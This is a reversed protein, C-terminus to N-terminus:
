NGGAFIGTYIVYQGDNDTQIDALADTVIDLAQQLEKVKNSGQLNRDIDKAALYLILNIDDRLM